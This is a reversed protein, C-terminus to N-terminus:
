MLISFDVAVKVPTSPMEFGPRSLARTTRICWCGIGETIEFRMKVEPDDDSWREHLASTWTWNDQNDRDGDIIIHQM